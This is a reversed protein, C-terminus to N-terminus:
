IVSKKQFRKRKIFAKEVLGELLLKLQTMNIIRQGLEDMPVHFQGSELKKAWLCFGSRDFYLLKLYNKRRNVFVFLQGSTPDQNLQTKVLAALGDFSKRMDTPRTCLWIKVQEEPFFM